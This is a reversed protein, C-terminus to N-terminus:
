QGSTPTPRSTLPTSQPKKDADPSSRKPMPVNITVAPMVLSKVFESRKARDPDRSRRADTDVKDNM